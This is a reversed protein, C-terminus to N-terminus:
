ASHVCSECSVMMAASLNMCVKAAMRREGKPLEDAELLSALLVVAMAADNFSLVVNGFM